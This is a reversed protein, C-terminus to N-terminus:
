EFLPVDEFGHREPTPKDEPPNKVVDMVEELTLGTAKSIQSPTFHHRHLDMAMRRKSDDM